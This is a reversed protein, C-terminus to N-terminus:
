SHWPIPFKVLSNGVRSFLPAFDESEGPFSFGLSRELRERDGPLFGASAFLRSVLLSVRLEPLPSLQKLLCSKRGGSVRCYQLSMTVVTNSSPPKGQTDTFISPRILLNISSITELTQITYGLTNLLSTCTVFKFGCPTFPCPRWMFPRSYAVKTNSPLSNLM